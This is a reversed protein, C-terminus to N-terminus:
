FEAEFRASKAAVYLFANWENIFFYHVFAGKPMQHKMKSSFQKEEARGTDSIWLGDNTQTQPLTDPPDIACFLLDTLTLRGTWHKCEEMEPTSTDIGIELVAERKLYDVSVKKLLADHFGNPLSNEIEVLTM